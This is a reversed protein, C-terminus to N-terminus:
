YCHCVSRSAVYGIKKEKKLWM